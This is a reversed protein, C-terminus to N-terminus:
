DSDTDSDSVNCFDRSCYLKSKEPYICSYILSIIFVISVISLEIPTFVTM